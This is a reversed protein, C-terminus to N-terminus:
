KTKTAQVSSYRCEVAQPNVQILNENLSSKKKGRYSRFVGWAKFLSKRYWTTFDFDVLRQQSRVNLIDCVGPEQIM